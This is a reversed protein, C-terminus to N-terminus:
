TRLVNAPRGDTEGEPTISGRLARGLPEGGAHCGSRDSEYTWIMAAEDSPSADEGLPSANDGPGKEPAKAQM